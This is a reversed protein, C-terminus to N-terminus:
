WLTLFVTLTLSHRSSATGQTGKSPFQLSGPTQLVQLLCSLITHPGHHCLGTISCGTHFLSVTGAQFKVPLQSPFIVLEFVIRLTIFFVVPRSHSRVWDSTM